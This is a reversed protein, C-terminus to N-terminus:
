LKINLEKVVRKEMEDIVWEEVEGIHPQAKTRTGDRNMHGRELLHTKRYEKKNHIIFNSIGGYYEQETVIWSKRYKGLLKPSEARLRKVAEKAIEKSIENVTDAIEDQYESLIDGIASSLADVSVGKLYHGSQSIKRANEAKRKRAIKILERM